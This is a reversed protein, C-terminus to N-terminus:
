RMGSSGWLVRARGERGYHVLFGESLRLWFFGEDRFTNRHLIKDVAACFHICLTFPLRDWAVEEGLRRRASLCHFLTDDGYHLALPDSGHTWQRYGLDFDEWLPDKGGLSVWPNELSGGREGHPVQTTMKREKMCAGSVPREPLWSFYPWPNGARTELGPGYLLRQPQPPTLLWAQLQMSQADDDYSM